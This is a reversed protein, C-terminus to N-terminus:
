AGRFEIAVTGIERGIFKLLANAFIVIAIMELFEEITYLITYLPTTTGHRDAEWASVVEIGVAGTLFLVGAVIFQIRVGRPLRWVFKLFAFGLFLAVVTYPIVWAFYLLGKTELIAHFVDGLEEHISVAEDLALFLFIFALIMWQVRGEARKRRQDIAIVFLLMSCFAIAFASYISPLNGEIDLDIMKIYEIDGALFYLAQIVHAACLALVIWLMVRTVRGVSLSARM